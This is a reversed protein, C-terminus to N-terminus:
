GAAQSFIGILTERETLPACAADLAQYRAQWQAHFAEFAAYSAWCDITLYRRSERQDRVLEVGVFGAGQRFLRAWDGDVGYAREFAAQQGEKVSFEWVILDM